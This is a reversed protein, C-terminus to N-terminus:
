VGLGPWRAVLAAGDVGEVVIGKRRASAGSVLRVRTPAIALIDAILRTVSANAAGDAPAAAVRVRLVGDLVGDVADRGARPTVRVAFRAEVARTM